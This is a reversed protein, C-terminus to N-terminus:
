IERERRRRRRRRRKKKGSGPGSAGLGGHSVPADDGSAIVEPSGTVVRADVGVSGGAFHVEPEAGAGAGTVAPDDDDASAYGTVETTAADPAAAPTVGAVAAAAGGEELAGTEDLEADIDSDVEEVRAGGGASAPTRPPATKEAYFRGMSAKELGTRVARAVREGGFRKGRSSLLGKEVKEGLSGIGSGLFNLMKKLPSSTAIRQLRTRKSADVKDAEKAYKHAEWTAWAAVASGVFLTAWTMFGWGGSSVKEDDLLRKNLAAVDGDEGSSGSPSLGLREFSGGSEQRMQQVRERGGSDAMEAAVVAYRESLQSMKAILSIMAKDGEQRVAIADGALEGSAILRETEQTHALLLSSVDVPRQAQEASVEVGAAKLAQVGEHTAQVVASAKEVLVTRGKLNQSVRHSAKLLLLRILDGKVVDPAQKMLLAWDRHSRDLHAQTVHTKGQPFLGELGELSVGLTQGITRSDKVSTQTLYDLLAWSFEVEFGDVSVGAQKASAQLFNKVVQSGMLGKHLDIIDRYLQALEGSSQRADVIVKIMRHKWTLLREEVVGRLGEVQTEDDAFVESRNLLAEGYTYLANSAIEEDTVRVNLTAAQRLMRSRQGEKIHLLDAIKVRLPEQAAVGMGELRADMTRLMTIAKDMDEVGLDQIVAVKAAGVYLANERMTRDAASCVFSICCLALVADRVKMFLNKM